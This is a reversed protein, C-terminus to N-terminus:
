MYGTAIHADLGWRAREGRIAYGTAIGGPYEGWIASMGTLWARRIWRPTAIAIHARETGGWGDGLDIDGVEKDASRRRPHLSDAFKWM